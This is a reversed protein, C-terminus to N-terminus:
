NKFIYKILAIIGLIVLGTILVWYIGMWGFWGHMGYNGMM